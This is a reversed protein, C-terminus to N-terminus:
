DVWAFRFTLIYTWKSISQRCFFVCSLKQDLKASDLHFTYLPICLPKYALSQQEASVSTKPLLCWWLLLFGSVADRQANVTNMIDAKGQNIEEDSAWLNGLCERVVSHTQLGTNIELESFNELWIGPFLTLLHQAHPATFRGQHILGNGGPITRNPGKAAGASSPTQWLSPPLSPRCGLDWMMPAGLVNWVFDNLKWFFSVFWLLVDLWLWTM